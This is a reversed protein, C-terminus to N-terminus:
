VDSGGSVNKNTSRIVAHVRNEPIFLKQAHDKVDSPTIELLSKMDRIYQKPDGDLVAHEGVTLARELNEQWDTFKERLIVAKARELEKDDLSHVYESILSQTKEMLHDGEVNPPHIMLIDAMGPGRRGDFIPMIDVALGLEHILKRKLFAGRGDALATLFLWAPYFAEDGWPPIRYGFLLAPLQAHPDDVDLRKPGDLPPEDLEPRPIPGGPQIDGFYYNVWSLTADIEFDGSIVLVANDPRYYTHFFQKVRELTAADLDEMSGIVSHANAFNSYATENFLLWAGMYPANDYRYRREEKVTDIQNQLHERTVALSRMRDSELWLALPLQDAPLVEYYVTREHTTNGNFSGGWSEIYKFFENKKVHASAQFMMHEFLHAFGTEGPKEDRAGVHYYVVVGALPVRHNTMLLVRLGNDLRHENIPWEMAKLLDMNSM